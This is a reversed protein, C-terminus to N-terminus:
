NERIKIKYISLDGLLKKLHRTAHYLADDKDKAIFKPYVLVAKNVTNSPKIITIRFSKITEM